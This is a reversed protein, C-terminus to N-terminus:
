SRLLTSNVCSMNKYGDAIFIVFSFKSTLLHVTIYSSVSDLIIMKKIKCSYDSTLVNM